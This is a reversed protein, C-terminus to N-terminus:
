LQENAGKCMKERLVALGPVDDLLPRLKKVNRVLYGTETKIRVTRIVGDPGLHTEVVRGMPWQFPTQNGDKILVISGKDIDGTFWKRRNNLENIYDKHWQIWYHQKLKKIYGWTSLQNAPTDTFDLEPVSTVSEGILFHGPTLTIPDNPDSSLPSIPRSNLISEIEIVLTNLDELCLLENGVVRRLHHKFSKVAAEWIGGFHPSAPLNLEM